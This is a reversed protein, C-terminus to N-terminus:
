WTWSACLWNLFHLFTEQWADGKQESFHIITLMSQHHFWLLVYYHLTHLVGPRLSACRSPPAGDSMVVSPAVHCIPIWWQGSPSFVRAWEWVQGLDVDCHSHFPLKLYWLLDTQLLLASGRGFVKPTNREVLSQGSSKTCSGFVITLSAESM